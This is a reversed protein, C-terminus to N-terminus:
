YVGSGLGRAFDETNQNRGMGVYHGSEDGVVSELLGFRCPTMNSGFNDRQFILDVDSLCDVQGVQAVAFFGILIELCRGRPSRNRPVPRGWGKFFSWCFSGAEIQRCTNMQTCISIRRTLAITM